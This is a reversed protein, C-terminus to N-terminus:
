PYESWWKPWKVKHPTRTAAVITRQEQPSLRWDLRGLSAEVLWPEIAMRATVRLPDRKKAMRLLELAHTVSGPALIKHVIIIRSFGQRPGTRKRVEEHAALLSRSAGGHGELGQKILQLVFAEVATVIREVGGERITVMQGLVAEYPAERRQRPPRGAPNAKQGKTFRTAKPPRGYGGGNGDEDDPPDDPSMM